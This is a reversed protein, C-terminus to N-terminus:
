SEAGAESLERAEPDAPADFVMRVGVNLYPRAPQKIRALLLEGAVEGMQGAELRVSLARGVRPRDCAGAAELRLGYAACEGLLGEAQEIGHCLLAQPRESEPMAALRGALEHDDTARWHVGAETPEIGHAELAQRWAALRLFTDPDTRKGSRYGSPRSADPTRKQPDWVCAGVFHIRRLGRSVWRDVVARYGSQPDAYVLDAQSSFRQTPFDVMVTPVKLELLEELWSEEIIGLTLLGDFGGQRVIQLDPVRKTGGIENGLCEVTLGRAPQRWIGRTFTGARDQELEPEVGAMGWSRLAGLALRHCFGDWHHAYVSHHWLVGFKLARGLILPPNEREAVFTGSGRRRVILGERVLDNLARVVTTNSADLEKFLEIETPLRSGPRLAGSMIQRRLQERIELHRPSKVTRM